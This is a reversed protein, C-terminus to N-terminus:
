LRWLRLGLGVTVTSLFNLLQSELYTSKSSFVITITCFGKIIGKKKKKKFLMIIGNEKEKKLLM